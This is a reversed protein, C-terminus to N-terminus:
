AWFAPDAYPQTDDDLEDTIPAAEEGWSIFRDRLEAVTLSRLAQQASRLAAAPDASEGQALLATYFHEMLLRASTDEVPWLTVLVARAGASLFARILGLPEDGRVVRSMGSRCASITVLEAQLQLGAIVDAASLREDPGIQLWSRLPDNLDFEGHCAI